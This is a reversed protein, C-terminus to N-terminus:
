VVSKRDITKSADRPDFKLELGQGRRKERAGGAYRVELASQRKASLGVPCGWNAPRVPVVGTFRYNGQAWVSTSALILVLLRSGHRM